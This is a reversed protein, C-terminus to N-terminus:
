RSASATTREALLERAITVAGWAGADSGAPLLRVRDPPLVEAVLLSQSRYRDLERLIPAMFPEGVHSVGGGILIQEVDYALALLHVGWAIARGASDIVEAAVADGARAAAFVGEAGVLPQEPSEPSDDRRAAWGARTRAVIAPGAAVAELCGRNGCACRPGDREIIVHGIEGALGLSGRHLQGNLV